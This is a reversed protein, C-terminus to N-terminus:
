RPRATSTEERIIGHMAALRAAKPTEPASLFAYMALAQDRQGSALLREACVLSADAVAMKALGTAKPLAAQLDKMAAAGGIHGVASIAAKAVEPDQHFMMKALIPEAKADGRKAMSNIVGIQLLGKLKPLAARLADEVAPDAIPELGYRAYTNLHESTLLAALSPIAEKAVLEGARQCAKAKQFESSSGNKLIAVIGAADMTAIDKEQFEPPPVPKPPKTQQQQQPM